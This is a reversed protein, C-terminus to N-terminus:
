EDRGGPMRYGHVGFTEEMGSLMSQAYALAQRIQDDMLDFGRRWDQNKPTTQSSSQNAAPGSRSRFPTGKELALAWKM